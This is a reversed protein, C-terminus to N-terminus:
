ADKYEIFEIGRKTINGSNDILNLDTMIQYLSYIRPTTFVPEVTELHSILNNEISFKLTNKTGSGMKDYAVELHRNILYRKILGEIFNLVSKNSNSTIWKLGETVDGPRFINYKQIYKETEGLNLKNRNWVMLLLRCGMAAAEFPNRGSVEKRIISVLDNESKATETEATEALTLEPSVQNLQIQFAQNINESLMEIFNNVPIKNYKGPNADMLFLMAWFITEVSFHWYENMQYYYWGFAVENHAEEGTVGEQLYLYTKFEIWDQENDRIFRLIIECTTKRFFTNTLNTDISFIAENETELPVDVCKLLRLYINYEDSDPPIESISFSDALFDLDQNNIGGKTISDWFLSKAATNLNNEFARALPRGEKETVVFIDPASKSYTIFGAVQMAAVYYQGFAGSSLQWYVYQKNPEKDAGQKIDIYDDSIHNSAYQTGPISSTDSRCKVMMFAILLEARRIYKKQADPNTDGVHKAYEELLWCYFGFYRIRTTLNTIIPILRAYTALSATQLGLSDRGRTLYDPAGWFPLLYNGNKLKM